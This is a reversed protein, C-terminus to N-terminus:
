DKHFSVCVPRRLVDGLHSMLRGGSLNASSCLCPKMDFCLKEEIVDQVETWGLRRAYKWAKLIQKKVGELCWPLSVSLTFSLSRPQESLTFYSNGEGSVLNTLDTKVTLVTGTLGATNIHTCDYVVVYICVYRRESRRGPRVESM